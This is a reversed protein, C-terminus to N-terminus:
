LLAGQENTEGVKQKRYFRLMKEALVVAGDAPKHKLEGLYNNRDYVQYVHHKRFKRKNVANIEYVKKENILIDVTLM